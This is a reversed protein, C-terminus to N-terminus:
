ETEVNSTSGPKWPLAVMEGVVVIEKGATLALTYDTNEALTVAKDSTFICNCGPLTFAMMPSFPAPLDVSM